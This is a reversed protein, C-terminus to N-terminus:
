SEKHGRLLLILGILLFVIVFVFILDVVISQFVANWLATGSGTVVEDHLIAVSLLLFSLSFPLAILRASRGKLFIPIFAVLAFLPIETLLAYSMTTRGLTLSWPLGIGCNIALYDLFFSAFVLVSVIIGLMILVYGNHEWNSDCSPSYSCRRRRSEFFLPNPPSSLQVVEAGQFKYAVAANTDYM